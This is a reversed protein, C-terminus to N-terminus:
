RATKQAAALLCILGGRAFKLLFSADSGGAVKLLQASVAGKPTVRAARNKGHGVQEQGRREGGGM